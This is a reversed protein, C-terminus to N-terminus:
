HGIVEELKARLAPLNQEVISQVEGCPAFDKVKVSSEPPERFAVSTNAVQLEGALPVLLAPSRGPQAVLGVVGCGQEDRLLLIGVTAAQCGAQPCVREPEPRVDIARGPFTEQLLARVRDQLAAALDRSDGREDAPIIRPWFM